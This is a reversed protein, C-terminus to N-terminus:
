VTAAAAVVSAASSRSPEWAEDPAGREDNDILPEPVRRRGSEQAPHMLQLRMRLPDQQDLTTVIGGAM